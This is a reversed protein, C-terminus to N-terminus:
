CDTRFVWIRVRPEREEPEGKLRRDLHNNFRAIQEQKLKCPLIRAGLSTYRPGLRLDKRLFQVVDFGIKEAEKQHVATDSRPQILVLFRSSPHLNHPEAMGMLQGRRISHLGQVGEEPRLFFSTYPQTSMFALANAVGAESCVESGVECERIFERVKDNTCYLKGFVSRIALELRRDTDELQERLEKNEQVMYRLQAETSAQRREIETLSVCSLWPLLLLAAAGANLSRRM